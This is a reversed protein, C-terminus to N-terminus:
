RNNELGIVRIITFEVFPCCLVEYWSGLVKWGWKYPSQLRDLSSNAINQNNYMDLGLLLPIILNLVVVGWILKTLIYFVRIGPESMTNYSNAIVFRKVTIFLVVWAYM